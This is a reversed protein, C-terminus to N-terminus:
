TILMLSSNFEKEYPTNPHLVPLKYNRDNVVIWTDQFSELPKQLRASKLCFDEIGTLSKELALVRTLGRTNDEVNM